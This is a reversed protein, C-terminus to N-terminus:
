IVELYDRDPLPPFAAVPPKQYWCAVSSIDPQLPMAPLRWPSELGMGLSTFENM